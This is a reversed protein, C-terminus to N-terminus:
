VSSLEGQELRYVTDMVDAVASDHTVVVFTTELDRSLSDITDLVASSSESDLNGTPEDMLVCSPRTVLARAIAVRQREGGSLESPLHTARHELSVRALWQEAADRAVRSSEGAILLPMEINEVASFEPLLHHFQYVFGLKQNRLTSIETDTLQDLRAGDIEVFGGSPQDLGGLISLLTSKGSGSAGVVAYRQGKQLALDLRRIVEIESNGQRYSRSVTNCRIVTQNM